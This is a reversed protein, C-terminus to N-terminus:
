QNPPGGEITTWIEGLLEAARDRRVNEDRAHRLRYVPLEALRTFVALQRRMIPAIPPLALAALLESPASGPEVEEIRGPGEDHEVTVIGVLQVPADHLVSAPLKVRQRQDDPEPEILQDAFVTDELLGRPCMPQRRISAVVPYEGSTDVVALDDGTLEWGAALASASLTSKGMGSVGVLLLHRGGHGVSAAHVVGRQRGALASALGAQLLMDLGKEDFDQGDSRPPHGSLPAIVVEDATVRCGVDNIVYFLDFGEVDSWWADLDLATERPPGGPGDMVPLIRLGVEPQATSPRRGLREYVLELSHHAEVGVATGAVDIVVSDVAGNFGPPWISRPVGGVGRTGEGGLGM